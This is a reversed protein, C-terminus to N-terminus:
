KKPFIYLSVFSSVPIVLVIASIAVLLRAIEEIIFESNFTVWFPVGPNAGFLMVLPLMTGFYALFMIAIYSSLNNEPNIVSKKFLDQKKLKKFSEKLNMVIGIQKNALHTIVGLTGVVVGAMLLAKLGIPDVAGTQLFIAEESGTGSIYAFKFLLFSVLSVLISTVIGSAFIVTSKKGVGYGIYSLLALIVLVGIALPIYSSKEVILRPVLYMYTVLFSGILSVLMGLNKGRGLIAWAIFVLVFGIAVAVVRYRDAIYYTPQDAQFSKTVVVFEGKKVKQEDSITYLSGHEMEIEKGREAGNLIVLKIKQYPQTFGEGLERNGEEVIQSVRALYFENQQPQGAIQTPENSASPSPSTQAAHTLSPVSILLALSLIFTWFKKM